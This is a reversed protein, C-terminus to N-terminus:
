RTMEKLTELYAKVSVGSRYPQLADRAHGSEEGRTEQKIARVAATVAQSGIDFPSQGTVAQLVDDESLLFGGIQESSTPAM